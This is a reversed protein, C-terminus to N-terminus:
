AAEYICHINFGDGTTWTFPTTSNIASGSLYSGSVATVLFQITDRSTGNFRVYGLRSATGLDQLEAFGNISTNNPAIIGMAGLAPLNTFSPNTSMSSTTGFTVTIRLIVTDGIRTYYASQTGNGLTLNNWTPTWSDWEGDLQAANLRQAM